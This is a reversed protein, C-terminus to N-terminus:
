PLGRAARLSRGLLRAMGTRPGPRALLAQNCEIEVGLYRTEPFRRRLWTSLGDSQGRYPYNRRVRVAPALTGLARQWRQCLVRERRRRPDYLLGLDARRVEGHLRPTFSHVAVHVVRHGAAIADAIAREIAARHPQYHRALLGRREAPALRASFESLLAPHGPSRNLEVLLRSVTAAFLPAALQRALIRAVALAGIDWGRHSALAARARAGRFLHAYM